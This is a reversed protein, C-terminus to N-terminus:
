GFPLRELEVFCKVADQQNAHIMMYPQHADFSLQFQKYCTLIGSENVLKFILNAAVESINWLVQCLENKMSCSDAIYM